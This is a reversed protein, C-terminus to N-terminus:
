DVDWIFVSVAVTICFITKHEPCFLCLIWQIWQLWCSACILLMNKQTFYIYYKVITAASSITVTPESNKIHYACKNKLVCVLLLELRLTQSEVCLGSENWVTYRNSICCLTEHSCMSLRRVHFLLLAFKACCWYYFKWQRFWSRNIEKTPWVVAEITQLFSLLSCTKM